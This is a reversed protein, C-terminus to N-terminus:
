NDRAGELVWTRILDIQGQTLFEGISPMRNGFRPNPNIKEVLYSADPDGPVLPCIDFMRAEIGQRFSSEYTRLDFGNSPLAGHCGTSLCGANQLIPRVQTAYSVTGGGAVGTPCRAPQEIMSGIARAGAYRLIGEDLEASALDGGVAWVGGEPDVWVAHFDRAQPDGEGGERLEWGSATRRALSLEFGVAAPLGQAPAFVGNLQKIGAPTRDRFVDGELEVIVGDTVFGGTAFVLGDNGHVTFLARVTDSEMRAWALGNWRLITGAQGVAYVENPGRGWVKFLAPVGAPLAASLDVPTWSAGDYHLMVGGDDDDAGVAWLDNAAAGWIGYLLADSGTELRTATSTAPDFRLVLGGEGSMYFHGGIPEVSVWWLDGSAKTDVRLWREGRYHLVLPGFDDAAPDSGVAIVDNPGSGSVSLLAGPLHELITRLRSSDGEETCMYDRAVCAPRIHCGICTTKDDFLVSRDRNVWQWHWDGDEPDFGPEEKRMVRWRELDADDCAVGDFEEKIVISGVPLPNQEELYAQASAPDALVRIMVGGHEISPRCDRVEVFTARYDAPFIPATPCVGLRAVTALVVDDVTVAGDDNGDAAECGDISAAELAIAVVAAGEPAAVVGDDDCDGPCALAPLAWALLLATLLARRM